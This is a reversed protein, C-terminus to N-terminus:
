LVPFAVELGSIGFLSKELGRSKEEARHPAHDTAIMDVTGDAIGELLALRDDEGRLPPNM